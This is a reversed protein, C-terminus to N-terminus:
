GVHTGSKAVYFNDLLDNAQAYTNMTGGQARRPTGQRAM